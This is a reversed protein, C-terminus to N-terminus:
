MGRSLAQLRDVASPDGDYTLHVASRGFVFLLLDIPDLTYPLRTLRDAFELTHCMHFKDILVDISLGTEANAFYLQKNGYLPADPATLSIQKDESTMM